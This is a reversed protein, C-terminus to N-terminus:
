EIGITSVNGVACWEGPERGRRLAETLRTLERALAPADPLPQWARLTERARSCEARESIAACVRGFELLGLSHRDM